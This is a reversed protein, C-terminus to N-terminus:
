WNEGPTDSYWWVPHTNVQLDVHTAGIWECFCGERWRGASDSLYKVEEQLLSVNNLRLATVFMNDMFYQSACHVSIEGIDYGLAGRLLRLERRLRENDNGAWTPGLEPEFHLGITHGLDFLAMWIRLNDVALANYNPAHLRIFFSSRVGISAEQLGIKHAAVPSFDVDHRLFLFRKDPAFNKVDRGARVIKWNNRDYRQLTALYHARTFDFCKGM